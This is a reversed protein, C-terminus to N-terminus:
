SHRPQSPGARDFYEVFCFGAPSNDRKNVGMIIRKIQGCESFVTHIQAERVANTGTFPYRGVYVTSSRGIVALYEEDPLGAKRDIYPRRQRESFVIISSM